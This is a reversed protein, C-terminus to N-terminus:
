SRKRLRPNADEPKRATPPRGGGGAGGGSRLPPTIGGVTRHSDRRESRPVAKYGRVRREPRIEHGPAANCDAPAPAVM